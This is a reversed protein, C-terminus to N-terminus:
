RCGLEDDNTTLHIDTAQAPAPLGIGLLLGAGLVVLMVTRRAGM